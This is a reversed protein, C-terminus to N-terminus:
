EVINIAEVIMGPEIKISSVKSFTQEGCKIHIVRKHIRMQFKDYTNTGNGCPSRRTTIALVKTPIRKVGSVVVKQDKVRKANNIIENCTKELEKYKTHTLTLKFTKLEQEQEVEKDKKDFNESM